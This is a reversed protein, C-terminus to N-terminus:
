INFVSFYLKLLSEGFFITTLVGLVIFPGFPLADKMTKQNRLMLVVGVIGGIIFSALTTFAIDPWGLLFGLAAILKLDGMGMGRGRTIYIIMGFFISGFALATFHNLWINEQLGFLMSYGGLFSTYFYETRDALYFISIKVVGLIALFINLSDPIIFFKFDILSLLLFSLFALVWIASVAYFWFINAGSALLYNINYYNLFYIPLIFILGSLIEVIPYQWSIKQLCTRCKGWLFIFSFVPILEYWLLTRGCKPCHSRGGLNKLDFIDKEPDYRLAVVNLFSGIVLGFIFLFIFLM